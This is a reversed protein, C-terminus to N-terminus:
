ELGVFIGGLVLRHDLGRMRGLLGGQHQQLQGMGHPRGVLKMPLTKQKVLEGFADLEGRFYQVKCRALSRQLPKLHGGFGQRLLASVGGGRGLVNVGKGDVVGHGGLDIVRERHATQARAHHGHPNVDGRRGQAEQWSVRHVVSSALSEGGNVHRALFDGHQGFGHDLGKGEFGVLVARADRQIDHEIFLAQLGQLAEGAHLLDEDAGIQAIVAQFLPDILCPKFSLLRGLAVQVRGKLEQGDFM